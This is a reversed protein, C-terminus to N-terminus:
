EACKFQCLPLRRQERVGNFALRDGFFNETDLADFVVFFLYIRSRDSPLHSGFKTTSHRHVITHARFLCICGSRGSTPYSIDYNIGRRFRLLLWRLVAAMILQDALARTHTNQTNAACDISHQRAFQVLRATCQTRYFFFGRCCIRFGHFVWNLHFFIIQFGEYQQRM